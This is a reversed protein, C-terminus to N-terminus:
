AGAASADRAVTGGNAAALLRAAYRGGVIRVESVGGALARKAAELKLIMGGSVKNHRIMDEIEDGRVARLM